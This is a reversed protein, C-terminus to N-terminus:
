DCLTTSDLYLLDHFSAPICSYLSRNRHMVVLSESEVNLTILDKMTYLLDIIGYKFWNQENVIVPKPAVLEKAFFNFLVIEFSNASFLFQSLLNGPIM